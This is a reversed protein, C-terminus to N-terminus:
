EKEDNDEYLGEEDDEDWEVQEDDTFNVSDPPVGKM